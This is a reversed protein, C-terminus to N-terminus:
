LCRLAVPDAIQRLGCAPCVVYAPLGQENTSFHEPRDVDRDPTVWKNKLDDWEKRAFGPSNYAATVLFPPRRFAPQHGQSLRIRARRSMSWTDGRKVWGSIFDLVAISPYAAWKGSADLQRPWMGEPYEIRKAFREGCSVRACVAWQENKSLRVLPLSEDVGGTHCAVSVGLLCWPMASMRSMRRM